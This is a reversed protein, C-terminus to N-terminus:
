ELGVTKYSTEFPWLDPEMFHLKAAASQFVNFSYHAGILDKFSTKLVPYALVFDYFNDAESRQMFHHVVRVAAVTVTQNYKDKAGLHNVFATIQDCVKAIATQLDNNKLHIWALRLHAEHSFLHANLSCQDFKREFLEDSLDLHNNLQYEDSLLSIKRLNGNIWRKRANRSFLCEKTYYVSPHNRSACNSQLFRHCAEEQPLSPYKLLYSKTVIMWFITLTEHYGSDDTNLTGVSTNYAKIKTRVMELATDFDHHLNHWLGVLLHAQHTWKAKPLTRQSFKMVLETIDKVSTPEM